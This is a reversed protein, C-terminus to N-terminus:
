CDDAFILKFLPKPQVPGSRDRIKFSWQRVGGTTTLEIDALAPNPAGQRLARQWVAAISCRPPGPLSERCVWDPSVDHRDPFVERGDYSIFHRTGGAGASQYSVDYDYRCSPGQASTPRAGPVPKQVRASRAKQHSPSRFRFDWSGSASLHSRGSPDVFSGTLGILEADDAWAQADHTAIALWDDGERAGLYSQWGGVALLSVLMVAVIVLVIKWPSTQASQQLPPPAGKPARMRPKPQAM